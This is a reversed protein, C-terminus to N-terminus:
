FIPLAFWFKQPFHQFFQYICPRKLILPPACARVVGGFDVGIAIVTCPGQALGVHVITSDEIMCDRTQVKLVLAVDSAITNFILKCCCM